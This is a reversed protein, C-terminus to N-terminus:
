RKVIGLVRGTNCEVRLYEGPKVGYRGAPVQYDAVGRAAQRMIITTGDRPDTMPSTCGDGTITDAPAIRPFRASPDFREPVDSAPRGSVSPSVSNSSGVSCGSLALALGALLVRNM